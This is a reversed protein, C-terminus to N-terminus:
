LIVEHDEPNIKNGFTQAVICRMAAKLISDGYQTTPNSGLPEYGSYAGWLPMGDHEGLYETSIEFHEILPGGQMWRSSPEYTVYEIEDKRNAVQMMCRKTVHTIWANKGLAKAIYFDLTASDMESVDIRGLMDISM